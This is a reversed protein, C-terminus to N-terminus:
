LKDLMTYAKEFNDISIEIENTENIGHGSKMKYCITSKKGSQRLRIWEAKEPNIDFVWRKQFVESDEKAGLKRLKTKIKEVNIDLVQTEFEQELKIVEM